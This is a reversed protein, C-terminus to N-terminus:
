DTFTSKSLNKGPPVRLYELQEYGTAVGCGNLGLRTDALDHM